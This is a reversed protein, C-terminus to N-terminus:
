EQRHGSYDSEGYRRELYASPDQGLGEGSDKRREKRREKTPRLFFPTLVEAGNRLSYLRGM